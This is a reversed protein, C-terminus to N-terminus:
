RAPGALLGEGIASRRYCVTYEFFLVGTPADSRGRGPPASRPLINISNPFKEHGGDGVRGGLPPDVLLRQQGLVDGLAVLPQPGVAVVLVLLQGAAEGVIRLIGVGGDDLALRLGVVHGEGEDAAAERAQHGPRPQDLLADGVHADDLLAAVEAAGPVPVAIRARLAVGGRHDVHRQQFFGTVHRGLLVGVRRLDQGLALPDPFLVAEIFVGEEVGLHGVDGPVLRGAAPHDRGVAAIDEGGAEDAQAGPRQVHGLQGANGADLGELAVGEVGAAPVIVIGAAVRLAPQHLLQGVLAHRDDAGPRGAHLRHRVQRPGALLQQDHLAGRGRDVHAGVRRDIRLPERPDRRGAPLLAPQLVEGGVLGAAVGLDVQHHVAPGVQRPADALLDGLQRGALARRLLHQGGVLIGVEFLHLLDARPGRRDHLVALGGLLQLGPVPLQALPRAEVVGIQLREVHRAHPQDVGVALADLPDGLVAEHDAPDLVLDVADDVGRAELDAGVVLAARAELHRALVPQGQRLGPALADLGLVADM